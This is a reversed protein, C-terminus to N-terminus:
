IYGPSLIKKLNKVQADFTACESNIYEIAIKRIKDADGNFEFVYIKHSNIYANNLECGRVILFAATALDNTKFM